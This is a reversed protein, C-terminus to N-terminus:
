KWWGNQTVEIKPFVWKMSEAELRKKWESCCSKKMWARDNLNVISLAEGDTHRVFRLRALPCLIMLMGIAMLHWLFTMLLDGKFVFWTHLKWKIDTDFIIVPWIWFYSCGLSHSETIQLKCVPYLGESCLWWSHCKNVLLVLTMGRSYTHLEDFFRTRNLTYLNEHFSWGCAKVGLNVWTSDGLKSWTMHNRLRCKNPPARPNRLRFHLYKTPARGSGFSRVTPVYFTFGIKLTIM